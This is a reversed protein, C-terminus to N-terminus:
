ENKLIMITEGPDISNKKPYFKMGNTRELGKLIEIVPVTRATSGITYKKNKKVGKGFKVKFDYYQALKHMIVDLPVEDFAFSDRKWATAEKPREMKTVSFSDKTLISREGPALKNVVTGFRKGVLVSGNLLTIAEVVSGKYADVNFSTGLVQTRLSDTLVTFPHQEDKEVEFYAEGNVEVSRAGTSFQKPYRITTNTNLWVKSSDPLTHLKTEGSRTNVTEYEVAALQQTEDAKDGFLLWAAVSLLLGIIIGAKLKRNFSWKFEHLQVVSAAQESRNPQTLQTDIGKINNSSHKQLFEEWDPKCQDVTLWLEIDEESVFQQEKIHPQNVWEEWTNIEEPSATGESIKLRIEVLRDFENQM